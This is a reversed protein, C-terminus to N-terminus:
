RRLKNGVYVRHLFTFNRGIEINYFQVNKRNQLMHQMNCSQNLINQM